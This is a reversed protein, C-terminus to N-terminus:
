SRLLASTLSFTEISRDLQHLLLQSTRNPAAEKLADKDLRTLNSSFIDVAPRAGGLHSNIAPTNRLQLRRHLVFFPTQQEASLSGLDDDEDDDLPPQFCTKSPSYTPPSVIPVPFFFGSNSGISRPSLSCSDRPKQLFSRCAAPAIYFFLHLM